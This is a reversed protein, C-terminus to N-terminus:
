LERIIEILLDKKDSNKHTKLIELIAYRKAIEEYQIFIEHKYKYDKPIIHSFYKSILKVAFEKDKGM